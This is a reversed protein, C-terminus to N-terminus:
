TLATRGESVQLQSLLSTSFLVRLVFLESSVSISVRSWTYSVPNPIFFTCIRFLYLILFLVLFLFIILMMIMIPLITILM